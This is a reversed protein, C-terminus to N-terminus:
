SSSSEDEDAGGSGLIEHVAAIGEWAAPFGAYPAIHLLTEVIERRSAGNRQAMRINLELGRQRGLAALAAITCLSKTRRDLGPRAWVEGSLFGVVYAEFDPSIEQWARQVQAAQDEGLMEKLIQVGRERNM